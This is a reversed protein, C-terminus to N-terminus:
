QEVPLRYGTCFRHQSVQQLWHVQYPYGREIPDPLANIIVLISDYYVGCPNTVRVWYIGTTRARIRHARSGNSWLFDNEYYNLGPDLLVSAMCTTTDPGLNPNPPGVSKVTFNHTVTDCVNSIEVWHNGPPFSGGLRTTAGNSWLYSTQPGWFGADQVPSNSGNCVYITDGITPTPQPNATINITDYVYGCGNDVGVWYTGSASVNITRSNQGGSWIYQSGPNGADLTVPNNACIVTDPGLDVSAINSSTVYITDFIQGCPTNLRVWVQGPSSVLISPSTSGNSWLFASANIGTSLNLSGGACLALSDFPFVNGQVLYTVTITDNFIGCANVVRVWYDGSQNVTIGYGNSGDSWLLSGSVGGDVTITVANTDCIFLDAGLITSPPDQATLVVTDTYTGCANTAQVWYVGSQNTTISDIAAGTSWLYTTSPSYPAKLVTPSSSCINRDSGLNINMPQDVTVVITDSATGCANTVQVWYTGSTSILISSGTAGTSWIYTSNPNFASLTFSNGQCFSISAGWNIQPVCAKLEGYFLVLFLVLGFCSKANLKM